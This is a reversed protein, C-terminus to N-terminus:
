DMEEGRTEEEPLMMGSILTVNSRCSMNYTTKLLKIAKARNPLMKKGLNQAVLLLDKKREGPRWTRRSTAM